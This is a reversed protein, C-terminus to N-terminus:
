GSGQADNQGSRGPLQKEHRNFVGLHGQDLDRQYARLSTRCDPFLLNCKANSSCGKLLPFSVQTHGRIVKSEKPVLEGLDPTPTFNFALIGGSPCLSAHQLRCAHAVTVFDRSQWMFHAKYKEYLLATNAAVKRLVRWSELDEDILQVYREDMSAAYVQM